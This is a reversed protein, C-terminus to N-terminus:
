SSPRGQNIREPLMPVSSRRTAASEGNRVVHSAAPVNDSSAVGLASAAITGLPLAGRYTRSETVPEGVKAM